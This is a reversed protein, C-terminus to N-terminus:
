FTRIEATVLQVTHSASTGGNYSAGIISNAVTSDFGGGTTQVSHILSSLGTTPQSDLQARGQLVASTGSGVTRFTCTVTFTGTDTAATGASFTFACRSTDSTTGATGVRVTVIPTATGAATKTVDFTLIYTTGVVPTGLPVSSGTLYTDSSFGAGQAATSRNTTVGTVFAANVEFFGIGEIYELAEGPGLNCKWLDFDTGNQDYVVTVDTATSAHKNRIHLTKVNRTTSAAPSAVIDTTTATTIATNQKGSTSGKVVPPDANSMDIFSAHVDLTGAASTVLQLKDTTATLLLM